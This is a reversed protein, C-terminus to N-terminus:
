KGYNKLFGEFNFTSYEKRVEQLLNINNNISDFDHPYIGSQKFIQEINKLLITFEPNNIVSNVLEHNHNDSM